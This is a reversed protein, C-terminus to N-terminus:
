KSIRDIVDYLVSGEAGSPVDMDMIKSITPAVDIIRAPFKREYPSVGPGALVMVAHMSHLSPLALHVGTFNGCLVAPEYLEPNKIMRESGDRYKVSTRYIFPHSM